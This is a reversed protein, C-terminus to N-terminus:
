EVAKGDDAKKWQWMGTAADYEAYGYKVANTQYTMETQKVAARIEFRSITYGILLGSVIGIFLGAVLLEGPKM